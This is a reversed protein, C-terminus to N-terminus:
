RHVIELIENMKLLELVAKVQPQPNLLRLRGNRQCLRKHVSVLAGLGFSDVMTTQSLDVEVATHHNGLQSNTLTKFYDANESTLRELGTVTLTDGQSHTRM